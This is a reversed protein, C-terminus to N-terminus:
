EKVSIKKRKLNDPNGILMKTNYATFFFFFVKLFFFTWSMSYSVKRLGTLLMLYDSICHLTPNKKKGAKNLYLQCIVNHLNLTYLM